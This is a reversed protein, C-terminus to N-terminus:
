HRKQKDVPPKQDVYDYLQSGDPAIRGDELKGRKQEQAEPRQPADAPSQGDGAPKAGGTPKHPAVPRHQVAPKHPTAPRQGPPIVEVHVDGNSRATTRIVTGDPLKTNSGDWTQTRTTGDPDRTVSTNNPLKTIKTGDPYTITTIHEPTARVVIGNVADKYVTTGDAMVERTSGNPYMRLSGNETAHETSGDAYQREESGDANIKFKYGPTGVKYPTGDKFTVEGTGDPRDTRQILENGSTVSDVTGDPKLKFQYDNGDVDVKVTGDPNIKVQTKEGNADVLEGKFSGDAQKSLEGEGVGKIGMLKGGGPTDKVDIKWSVMPQVPQVSVEQAATKADPKQEVEKADAKQEVDKKPNQPDSLSDVFQVAHLDQETACQKAAFYDGNGGAFLQPQYELQQGEAAFGAKVQSDLQEARYANSM